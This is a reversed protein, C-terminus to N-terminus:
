LFLHSNWNLSIALVLRVLQYKRLRIKVLIQGICKLNIKLSFTKPRYKAWFANKALIVLRRLTEYTEQILNWQQLSMQQGDWFSSIVLPKQAKLPGFTITSFNGISVRLNYLATLQKKPLFDSCVNKGVYSLLGRFLPDQKMKPWLLKNSTNLWPKIWLWITLVSM